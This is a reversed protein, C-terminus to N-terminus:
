RPLPTSSLKKAVEQAILKYGEPSPHWAGYITRLGRTKVAQAFPQYLDLTPLGAAEACSLVAQAVRHQEAGFEADQWTYFVYQAVVLTPIGLKKLRQMMPCALLLGEGRPMVRVHDVMWEYQWGEHRLVTDLLVSWGFARQWFDLTTGPDPSPPVPVNRLVLAGDKLVFYPKEAGWTRSMESRRVDDAIFGLVILAPKLRPALQETRLVTQDLGYAAVGANIVRRDLLGQLWAPWTDTDDVEDGQTYSDGTALVPAASTDVEPTLPTLRIGEADYNVRASAVEKQVWGLDRDYRYRRATNDAVSGVRERRIINDWRVLTDPGRLLRCGLELLILSFLVSGLILALRGIL